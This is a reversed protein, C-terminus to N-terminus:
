FHSTVLSNIFINVFLIINERLFIILYWRADLLPSNFAVLTSPVFSLSLSHSLSIKILQSINFILCSLNASWYVQILILNLLNMRMLWRLRLLKIGFRTSFLFVLPSRLLLLLIYELDDLHAV